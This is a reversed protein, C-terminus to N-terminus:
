KRRQAPAGLLRNFAERDDENNALNRSPKEDKPAQVKDSYVPGRDSVPRKGLEKVMDALTKTM